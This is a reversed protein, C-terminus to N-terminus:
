VNTIELRAAARADKINNPMVEGSDAQRLVMWDTSALYAQAKSNISKQEYETALLVAKEELLTMQEASAPAGNIYIIKSGVEQSCNGYLVAAAGILDIM